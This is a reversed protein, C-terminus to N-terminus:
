TEKITYTRTYRTVIYLRYHPKAFRSFLAVCLRLVAESQGIVFAFAYGLIICLRRKPPTLSRSFLSLVCRLIVKLTQQVVFTFVHQLLVSLNSETDCPPQAPKGWCLVVEPKRVVLPQAHGLVVGLSSEPIVFRGLLAIGHRLIVESNQVVIAM